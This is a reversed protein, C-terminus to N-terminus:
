DAPLFCTKVRLYARPNKLAEAVYRQCLLVMRQEVARLAEDAITLERREAANEVCPRTAARVTGALDQALQQRWEKRERELEAAFERDEDSETVDRRKARGAEAKPWIKEYFETRHARSWRWLSWAGLGPIDAAETTEDGLHDYAWGVDGILDPEGARRTRIIEAIFTLDLEDIPRAAEVPLPPFENIMASWSAELADKRTMGSTRFDQRKRDRFKTAEDWRGERRLRCTAESRTEDV